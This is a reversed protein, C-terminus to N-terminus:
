ALLVNTPASTSGESEGAPEKEGSDGEARRDGRLLVRRRVRLRWVGSGGGYKITRWGQGTLTGAERKREVSAAGLRRRERGCGTQERRSGETKRERSGGYVEM